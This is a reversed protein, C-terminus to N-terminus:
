RTFGSTMSFRWPTRWVSSDLSWFHGEGRGEGRLGPRPLHSTTAIGARARPGVGGPIPPASMHSIRALPEARAVRPPEKASGRYRSPEPRAGQRPDGTRARLAAAGGCCRRAGAAPRRPQQPEDRDERWLRRSAAASYRAVMNQRARVITEGPEFEHEALGPHAPKRVPEVTHVLFVLVAIRREPQRHLWALQPAPLAIRGVLVFGRHRLHNRQDALVVDHQARVM